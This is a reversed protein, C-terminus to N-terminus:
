VLWLPQQLQLGSFSEHLPEQQLSFHLVRSMEKETEGRAGAYTMALATSISYPSLFLNGERRKLERYLDFAFNCNGKVVTQLDDAFTLLSFISVIVIIVPLSSCKIKM